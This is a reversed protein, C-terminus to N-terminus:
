LRPEIRVETRRAAEIVPCKAEMQSIASNLATISEQIKQEIVMHDKISQRLEVNSATQMVLAEATKIQLVISGQYAKWLVVIAIAMASQLTLSAISTIWPPLVEPAVTTQAQLMLNLFIIGLVLKVIM